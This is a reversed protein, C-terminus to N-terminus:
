NMATEAYKEAQFKKGPSINSLLFSILKNSIFFCCGVPMLAGLNPQTKNEVHLRATDTEPVRTRRYQDVYICLWTSDARRPQGRCIYHSVVLLWCHVGLVAPLSLHPLQPLHSARTQQCEADGPCLSKM